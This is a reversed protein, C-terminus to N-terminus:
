LLVFGGLREIWSSDVIAVSIGIDAIKLESTKYSWVFGRLENSVITGSRASLQVSSSARM